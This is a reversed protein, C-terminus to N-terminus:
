HSTCKFNPSKLKKPEVSGNLLTAFHKQSQSLSGINPLRKETWVLSASGNPQHWFTMLVQIFHLIVLAVIMRERDRERERCSREEEEVAERWKREV